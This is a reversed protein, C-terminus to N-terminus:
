KERWKIGNRGWKNRVNTRNKSDTHKKLEM